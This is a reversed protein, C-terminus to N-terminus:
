YAKRRWYNSFIAKRQEWELYDLLGYYIVRKIEKRNYKMRLNIDLLLVKDYALSSLKNIGTFRIVRPQITYKKFRKYIVEKEFEFLEREGINMDEAKCLDEVEILCNQCYPCEISLIFHKYFRRRVEFDKKCEVCGLAGLKKIWANFLQRNVQLRM